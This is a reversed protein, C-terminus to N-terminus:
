VAVGPEKVLESLVERYRQVMMDTAYHAQTRRRAAQGLKARLSASGLLYIIADALARANAPPVLLGSREHEILDVSGSVATAVCPMGLAMAELLANSMGEVRSPLVFAEAQQLLSTVDEVPGLFDVYKAVGCESALKVLMTSDGKGGIALRIASRERVVMGWAEILVDLGKLPQQSLNAVCVAGYLHASQSEWTKTPIDVGNPILRIRAPEVGLALLEERISESIAIVRDADLLARRQWQAILDQFLYARSNASRVIVPIRLTRALRCVIAELPSFFFCILVSVASHQRWLFFAVDVALLMQVIVQKVWNLSKRIGKRRRAIEYTTGDQPKTPGGPWIRRWLGVFGIRHVRIEEVVDVRSTEPSLHQTLVWALQRSRKLSRGLRLCQREAGGILPFFSSSVIGVRRARESMVSWEWVQAVVASPM